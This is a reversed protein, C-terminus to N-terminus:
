YESPGSFDESAERCAEFYFDNVLEVGFVEMFGPRIFEHSWVHFIDPLDHIAETVYQDIQRQVKRDYDNVIGDVLMNETEFQDPIPTEASTERVRRLISRLPVSQWVM